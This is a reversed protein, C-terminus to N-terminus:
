RFDERFLHRPLKGPPAADREDPETKRGDALRGFVFSKALGRAVRVRPLPVHPTIDVSAVHRLCTPQAQGGVDSAGLREDDRGPIGRAVSRVRLQHSLAESGDWNARPRALVVSQQRDVLRPPHEAIGGAVRPALRKGNSRSRGGAVARSPAPIPPLGISITTAAAVLRNPPESDSGRCSTRTTNRPDPATVCSGARTVTSPSRRRPSPGTMTPDRSAPASARMSIGTSTSEGVKPSVSGAVTTTSSPEEWGVRWEKSKSTASGPQRINM